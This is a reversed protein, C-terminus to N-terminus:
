LHIFHFLSFGVFHSSLVCMFVSKSDLGIKNKKRVKGDESNQRSPVFCFPIGFPKRKISFLWGVVLRINPITQILMFFAFLSCTFPSFGV